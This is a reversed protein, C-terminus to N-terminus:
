LSVGIRRQNMMILRQNAWDFAQRHTNFQKTGLQPHSGVWGPMYQPTPNCVPCVGWRRQRYARGRSSTSNLGNGSAAASM